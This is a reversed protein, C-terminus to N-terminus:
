SRRLKPRAFSSGACDARAPTAVPQVAAVYDPPSAPQEAPPGDPHGDPQETPAFDM